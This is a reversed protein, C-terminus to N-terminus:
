VLQFEKDPCHFVIVAVGDMSSKSSSTILKRKLQINQINSIHMLFHLHSQSSHQTALKPSPSKSLQMKVIEIQIIWSPLYCWRFISFIKNKHIQLPSFLSSNEIRKIFNHDQPDSQELSWEIHDTTECFPFINGARTEGSPIGDDVFEHWIDAVLSAIIGWYEVPKLKM